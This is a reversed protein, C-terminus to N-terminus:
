PNKAAYTAATLIRIQKPESTKELGSACGIGRVVTIRAKASYSHKAWCLATITGSLVPFACDEPTLLILGTFGTDLLTLILQVVGQYCGTDLRDTSTLCGRENTSWTHFDRLLGKMLAPFGKARAIELKTRHQFRKRLLQESFFFTNKPLVSTEPRQSASNDLFVSEPSLGECSILQSFSAPLPNRQRYYKRRLQAADQAVPGTIEDPYPLRHFIADNVLLLLKTDAQGGQSGKLFSIGHRLSRIPFDGAAEQALTRLRPNDCDQWVMPVLAGKFDDYMLSYHGSLVATRAHAGDRAALLFASIDSESALEEEYVHLM